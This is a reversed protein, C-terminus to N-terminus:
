AGRVAPLEDPVRLSRPRGPVRPRRRFRDSHPETAGRRPSGGCRGRGRRAALDPLAPVSIQAPTGGSGAVMASTPNRFGSDQEFGIVGFVAIATLSAALAFGVTARSRHHTGTHVPTTSTQPHLFVPEHELATSIRDTLDMPIHKPLTGRMADGILHYNRWCKQMEPDHRLSQIASSMEWADLEDDVLTSIKDANRNTMPLVQGAHDHDDGM